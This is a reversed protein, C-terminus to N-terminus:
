SSREQHQLHRSAGTVGVCQVETNGFAWLVGAVVCLCNIYLTVTNDM